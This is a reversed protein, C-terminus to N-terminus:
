RLRTVLLINGSREIVLGNSAAVIELAERWRVGHLHATVVGTVDDAFVVNLRGHAALDEIVTRVDARQVDLDVRAGRSQALGSPTLALSSVCVVLVAVARVRRADFAVLAADVGWARRDHSARLRGHTWSQESDEAEHEGREDHGLWPRARLRRRRGRGLDPLALGDHVGDDLEMAGAEHQAAVSRELEM